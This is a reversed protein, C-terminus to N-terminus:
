TMSSSNFLSLGHFIYDATTFAGKFGETSQISALHQKRLSMLEKLRKTEERWEEVEFTYDYEKALDKVSEATTAESLVAEDINLPKAHPGDGNLDYLFSEVASLAGKEKRQLELLQNELNLNSM